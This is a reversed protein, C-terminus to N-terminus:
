VFMDCWKLNVDYCVGLACIVVASVVLNVILALQKCAAQFVSMCLSHLVAEVLKLPKMTHCLKLVVCLVVLWPIDGCHTWCQQGRGGGWEMGEVGVCPKTQFHWHHVFVFLYIKEGKCGEVCFQCWLLLTKGWFVHGRIQRFLVDVHADTQLASSIM